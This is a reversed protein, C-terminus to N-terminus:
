VTPNMQANVWDFMADQEEGSYKSTYYGGPLGESIAIQLMQNFEEQTMNDEKFLSSGGTKILFLRKIKIWSGATSFKQKRVTTCFSAGKKEPVAQAELEELEEM